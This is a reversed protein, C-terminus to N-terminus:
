SSVIKNPGIELAKWKWPSLKSLCPGEVVSVSTVNQGEIHEFEILSSFSFVEVLFSWEQDFKTIKPLKAGKVEAFITWNVQFKWNHYSNFITVFYRLIKIMDCKGATTTGRWLAVKKSNKLM